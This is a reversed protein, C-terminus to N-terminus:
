LRTLLAVALELMTTTSADVLAPEAAEEEGVTMEIEIFFSPPLGIGQVADVQWTTNEPVFVPVFVEGLQAAGQLMVEPPGAVQDIPPGPPIGVGFLGRVKWVFVNVRVGPACVEKRRLPGKVVPVDAENQIAPADTM